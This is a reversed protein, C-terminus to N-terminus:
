THRTTVEAVDTMIYTRQLTRVEHVRTAGAKNNADSCSMVTRVVVCRQVRNKDLNFRKFVFDCARM